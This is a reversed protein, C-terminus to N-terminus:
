LSSSSIDLVELSQIREQSSTVDGIYFIFKVGMLDGAGVDRWVNIKFEQLILDIAQIEIDIKSSQVETDELTNDVLTSISAWFIGIVILSLSIILLTTIVQSLGKRNKMFFSDTCSRKGRM